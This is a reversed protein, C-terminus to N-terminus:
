RRSPTVLWEKYLRTQRNTLRDSMAIARCGLAHPQRNVVAASCFLPQHDGAKERANAFIESAEPDEQWKRKTDQETMFRQERVFLLYLRRGTERAECHSISRAALGAFPKARAPTLFWRDAIASAIEGACDSPGAICAGTRM